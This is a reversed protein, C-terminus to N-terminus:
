PDTDRDADKREYVEPYLKRICAPCIGHSFTAESHDHIYAEIQTWYGEDNRIKKCSACIPLFGRLIKVDELAQERERVVEARKEEIEKRHLSLLATVWIAFLAIARNFVGKWLAGSSPSHFFGAITLLSCIIAVVMTFRKGASGLSILVVAVYLVGMAVGLPVALDALLIMVMLLGCVLYLTATTRGRLAAHNTTTKDM